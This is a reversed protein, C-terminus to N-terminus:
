RMGAPAPIRLMIRVDRHLLQMQELLAAWRRDLTSATAAAIYPHIVVSVGSSAASAKEVVRLLQGDSTEERPSLVLAHQFGHQMAAAVTQVARDTLAEPGLFDFSIQILSIRRGVEALADPRQGDTDLLVPVPPEWEGFLAAVYDANGLVDRGCVCISHCGSKLLLRKLEGRLGDASYLTATEGEGAFRVFIQRRGLWIGQSQMGVPVGALAAAPSRTNM